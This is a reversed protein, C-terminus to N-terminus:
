AERALLHLLQLFGEVDRVHVSEQASHPNESPPGVFVWDIPYPLHQIERGDSGGQAEVELQFPIRSDRISFVPGLGPKVGETAWTVDAIIAKSVRYKEYLKRALYGATGGSTEEYTTFVLAVNEAVPALQLLAWVGLRDDLYPSKIFDEERVFRAAYTLRTGAELIERSDILDSDDESVLVTELLKGHHMGALVDGTEGATGGIPVLYNDYRVMYGVTDLHAYLAVRPEGFVLTLTDQFGEGVWVEPRCRWGSAHQDVHDLIFRTVLSEDGSTGPIRCLHELLEFNSEM